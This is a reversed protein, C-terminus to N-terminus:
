YKEKNLKEINKIVATGKLKLPNIFSPYL